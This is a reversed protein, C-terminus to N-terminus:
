RRGAGRGPDEAPIDREDTDAGADPGYREEMERELNNRTLAAFGRNGSSAGRAANGRGAFEVAKRCWNRWAAPWNRKVANRSASAHWHDRFKDVETQVRDPILRKAFAIDADSPMWDEPLRAARAEVSRLSTSDKLEEIRRKDIGGDFLGAAKNKLPKSARGPPPQVPTRRPNGPPVPPPQRPTAPPTPAPDGKRNAMRGAIKRLESEVRKNSVKGGQVVLKGREVLNGFNIRFKLVHQNCRGAFGRENMVVPGDNLYILNCVVDYVRYEGDSLGETGDMWASVHRSFYAVM